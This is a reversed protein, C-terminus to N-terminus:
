RAGEMRILADQVAQVAALIQPTSAAISRSVLHEPGYRSHIEALREHVDLHRGDPGTTMDCYTLADALEQQEPAFEKTLADYLDRETAENVACSHHAVLRCLREDAGAVDRLYRAGDLPHFGTDVLEPSYGIDHLYAAATLTDADDGLIPALSVARAAVGQTHAWRRPLPGALLREALDRAWAAQEM